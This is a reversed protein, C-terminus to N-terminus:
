KFNENIYRYLLEAMEHHHLEEPHHGEYNSYNAYMYDFWIYGEYKESKLKLFKLKPHVVESRRWANLFVVNGDVLSDFLVCDRITKREIEDEDILYKLEFNRWQEVEKASANFYEAIYEIDQHIESSNIYRKLHNSYLDKRMSDSLGIVFLSDKVMEGNDEVWDFLERFIKDNSNGGCAINIEEINLKDSLKKSFRNKEFLLQQKDDDDYMSGGQTFSCGNVVLYKYKKM